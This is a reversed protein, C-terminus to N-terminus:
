AARALTTTISGSRNINKIIYQINLTIGYEEYKVDIENVIVRPEHRGIADTIEKKMNFETFGPEYQFLYESLNCGYFPNFPRTGKKTRILNIISRKIAVENIVPRVDGSVPHPTFDLSLDKFFAIDAM